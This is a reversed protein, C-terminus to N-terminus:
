GNKILKFTSPSLRKGMMPAGALICADGISFMLPTSFVNYNATYAAGDMFIQPKVHTNM